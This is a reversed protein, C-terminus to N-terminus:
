TLDGHKYLLCKISLWRGLSLIPFTSIFVGCLLIVTLCICQKLLTANKKTLSIVEIFIIEKCM